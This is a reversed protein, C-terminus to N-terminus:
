QAPVKPRIWLLVAALLIGWVAFGWNVMRILTEPPLMTDVLKMMEEPYGMAEFMPAFGLRHLSVWWSVGFLGIVGVALWWGALRRRYLWWAALALAATVALYALVGLAKPLVVGFLPFWGRYMLASPPMMLAGFGLWLAAGLVPLPCAETWSPRPDAALCTARVSPRSYFWWMGGPLVVYIVGTFALTIAMVLPLLYSTSVAPAGAPAPLAAEMGRMMGPLVVAMMVLSIVGVVFGSASLVLWLDRAWRRAQMAGWGLWVLVAAVGFYFLPGWLRLAWPTLQGGPRTTMSVNVASLAALGACGLGLAIGLAGAMLLMSRRDRVQEPLNLPAAPPMLTLSLPRRSQPLM